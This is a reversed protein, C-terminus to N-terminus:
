KRKVAKMDGEVTSIVLHTIAGAGDNFFEVRAGAISFVTESEASLPYKGGTPPQMMLQNGSVTVRFLQQKGELDTLDYSGEYKALVAPTITEALRAKRRDNDTVVFHQVDKENENCVSELLETDPQLEATLAITWPRAYAKPDDFTMQVQMHGFDTRRYRETVRLAETHPHGGFDLWTSDNFGGSTVVLTDRDWRGVSYGMWTPQPNVPLARGDTLIQRFLGQESLMALTGRGQLLKFIGFSYFPGIEPMCRFGPHDRSFDESRQRFLADAWPLIDAAELDTLLNLSYGGPDTRWIGSLDPTRDPLRPAPADLRPKGDATRPIGPTRDTLWQASASPVVVLALSVALLVPRLHSKV